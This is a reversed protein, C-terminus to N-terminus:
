VLCPYGSFGIHLPRLCPQRLGVGVPIISCERIALSRYASPDIGEEGVIMQASVVTLVIRLLAVKQTFDSDLDGADNVVKGDVWAVLAFMAILLNVLSGSPM